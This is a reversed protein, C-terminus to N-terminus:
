VCGLFNFWTVRFSFFIDWLLTFKPSFCIVGTVYVFELLSFILLFRCACSLCARSSSSSLATSNGSSIYVQICWLVLAQTKTLFNDRYLTSTYTKLRHLTQQKTNHPQRLYKNAAQLVKWNLIFTKLWINNGLISFM